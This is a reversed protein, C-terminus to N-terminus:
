IRAPTTDFPDDNWNIISQALKKQQRQENRLRAAHQAERVGGKTSWSRFCDLCIWRRIDSLNARDHECEYYVTAM